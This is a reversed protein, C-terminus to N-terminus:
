YDIERILDNLHFNFECSIKNPDLNKSKLIAKSFELYLPYNNGELDSVFYGADIINQDEYIEKQNLTSLQKILSKGKLLNKKQSKELDFKLGCFDLIKGTRLIKSYYVELNLLNLISFIEQHSANKEVVLALLISYFKKKKINKGIEIISYEIQNAVEIPLATHKESDYNIQYDYYEKTSLIEEISNTFRERESQNVINKYQLFDTYEIGESKANNNILGNKKNGEIIERQRKQFAIYQEIESDKQEM